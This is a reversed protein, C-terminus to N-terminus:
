EPIQPGQTLFEMEWSYIFASTSMEGNLFDMIDEAQATAMLSEGDDFNVIATVKGDTNDLYNLGSSFVFTIAANLEDMESSSLEDYTVTVENDGIQVNTADIGGSKLEQMLKQENTQGSPPNYNGGNNNGDDIPPVVDICGFFLFGILLVFVFKNM